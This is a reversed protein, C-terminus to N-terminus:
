PITKDVALGLQQYLNKALNSYGFFDTVQALEDFVKVEVNDKEGLWISLGQRIAVFKGGQTKAVCLVFQRGNRPYSAASALITGTFRLNPEDDQQIIYTQMRVPADAPSQKVASGVVNSAESPAEQHTDLNAPAREAEKKFFAAPLLMKLYAVIRSYVQNFEIPPKWEFFDKLAISRSQPEASHREKWKVTVEGPPQSSLDLPFSVVFYRGEEQVSFTFQKEAPLMNLRASVGDSEFNFSLPSRPFDPAQMAALMESMQQHNKFLLQAIQPVFLSRM